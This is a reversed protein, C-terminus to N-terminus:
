IVLLYNVRLVEPAIKLNYMMVYEYSWRGVLQKSIVQLYISSQLSRVTCLVPTQDISHFEVATFSRNPLM